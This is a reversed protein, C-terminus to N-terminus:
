QNQTDTGNEILVHDKEFHAMGLAGPRTAVQLRSVDPQIRDFEQKTVRLTVEEDLNILYKRPLDLDLAAEYHTRNRDKVVYKDLILANQTTPGNPDLFINAGLLTIYILCGYLVGNPALLTWIQEKDYQKTYYTIGAGILGALLVLSLMASYGHVFPYFSQLLTAPFVTLVVVFILAKYRKELRRKTQASQPTPLKVKGSQIKERLRDGAYDLLRDEADGLRLRNILIQAKSEGVVGIQHCSPVHKSGITIKWSEIADWPLTLYPSQAEHSTNKEILRESKVRFFLPLGIKVEREDILIEKGEILQLTQRDRSIKRRNHYALGAMLGGMGILIWPAWSTDQRGGSAPLSFVLVGLGLFVLALFASTWVSTRNESKLQQALGPAALVAPYELNQPTLHQNQM